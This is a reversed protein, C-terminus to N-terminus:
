ATSPWPQNKLISYGSTGTTNRSGPRLPIVPKVLTSRVVNVPSVSSVLQKWALTLKVPQLFSTVKRAARARYVLTLLVSHMSAPVCLWLWRHGPYTGWLFQFEKTTCEFLFTVTVPLDM